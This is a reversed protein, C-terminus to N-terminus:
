SFKNDFVRKYSNEKLDLTSSVTGRPMLTGTSTLALANPTKTRPVIKEGCATRCSQIISTNVGSWNANKPKIM